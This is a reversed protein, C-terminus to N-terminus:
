GISEPTPLRFRDFAAQTLREATKTELTHRYLASYIEARLERLYKEYNAITRSVEVAKAPLRAATLGARQAYVLFKGEAPTRVARHFAGSASHVGKFMPTDEFVLSENPLDITVIEGETAAPSYFEEPFKRPGDPLLDNLVTESADGEAKTSRSRTKRQKGRTQALGIREGVLTCLADHVRKEFLRPRVGIAELVACDLERRDVKKVEEFINGVARPALEMFAAKIKNRATKDIGSLLPILVDNEIDAAIMKSAGGGLSQRAVAEQMLFGVGSNVLAAVLDLDEGDKLHVLHLNHDAYIPVECFRHALSDGLHEAWFLQAPKVLGLSWWGPHRANVSPGEPWPIGDPTCQTEGWEIYRLAGRKKQAHLEGKSLLCLFVRSKLDDSKIALTRFERPSRLVPKIFEAEIGFEAIREDTLYFFDNIRTVFGNIVSAIKGLPVFPVQSSRPLDFYLDPARMYVGWKATRKKEDLASLLEDQRCVRVRFSDDEETRTSFPRTHRDKWGAHEVRAVHTGIQTWRGDDGVRAGTPIIEALPRKVKVFKVLNDAREVADSCREVITVVTNVDAETFWPECRSELIAVLKFNDLLFRQLQHGYDVDLWANSTIIGMRGGPALHRAVHFFLYALIDAKGSLKLEAESRLESYPLKLKLCRDLEKQYRKSRFTFADPYDDFWDDAIVREIHRKYGPVLNEIKEQRIYPFNGVIADFQPLAQDILQPREADVKPPPFRFSQGPKISFMDQCVIRPFNGYEAVRQRFLNITALEAPFPAIDIGWIQSLLAVHNVQGLARLRDYARILFTGTGCTPDLVHDTSSRVCFAVILDCLNEPTFYQGFGHREEPPILREFVTGVVDQPVNSFDRTRFDHILAALERSAEAPWQIRDPVDEAFVSHYDIELARAFARRLAPLVEASDCGRLDVDPLQRFSRRLSQYFLIKGLLRYIIQRAVSEAFDASRTDGAIGQKVAWVAIENRFPVDAELRLQLSQTVPPLLAHVADLLRGVFYTADIRVLGLAQDKLLRELDHLLERGRELIRLRVPETLPQGDGTPVEFLDAYDRLKELADRAVPVGPKPTRWLMADRLTWTVFYPAKHARARRVAFDLVEPADAARSPVTLLVLAHPGEQADHRGRVLVTWFPARAISTADPAVPREPLLCADDGSAFAAVFREVVDAVTDAVVMKM